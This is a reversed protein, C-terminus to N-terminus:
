LLKLEICICKILLLRNTENIKELNNMAMIQDFYEQYIENSHFKKLCDIIKLKNTLIYQNLTDSLYFQQKEYDYNNMACYELTKSIKENLKM